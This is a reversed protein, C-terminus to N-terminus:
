KYIAKIDGWSTPETANGLCDVLLRWALEVYGYQSGDQTTDGGDIFWQPPCHEFDVGYYGSHITPYHSTIPRPYLAPLCGADHMQCGEALSGSINDFGWQPYTCDTGVHTVTLLLRPMAPGPLISCTTVALPPEVAITNWESVTEIPPSEWLSTGVPCGTEDACYINFKVTYYGPYVLGYGSFDLVRFGMVHQCEVSDCVTFGATPTDGITFFAGVKDGYSWDYFGWFWSYTPCPIYYYYQLYCEDMQATALDETLRIAKKEFGHASGALCAVCLVAIAMWTKMRM